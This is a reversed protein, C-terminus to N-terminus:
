FYYIVLIEISRVEAHMVGTVVMFDDLIRNEKSFQEFLTPKYQRRILTEAWQKLM